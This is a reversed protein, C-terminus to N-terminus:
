SAGKLKTRDSGRGFGIAKMLQNYGHAVQISAITLVTTVSDVIM